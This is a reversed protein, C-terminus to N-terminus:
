LSSRRKTGSLVALAGGCLFFDRVLATWASTKGGGPRFCGCDIDLGRVLISALAAMFVVTLLVIVAAAGRTRWGAVLLLGCLVELWPIVAAALYNGFYPLIRYAAISGAFAQPDAIKQVGAYLFVGGLILRILLVATQRNCSV